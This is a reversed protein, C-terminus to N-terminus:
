VANLADMIKIFYKFLNGPKMLVGDPRSHIKNLFNGRIKLMPVAAGHM